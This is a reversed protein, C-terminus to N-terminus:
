SKSIFAASTLLGTVRALTIHTDVKGFILEEFLSIGLQPDMEPEYISGGEHLEDPVLYIEILDALPVVMAGCQLDGGLDRLAREGRGPPSDLIKM